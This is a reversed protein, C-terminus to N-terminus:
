EKKKKVPPIDNVVYLGGQKEPRRVLYIAIIALVLTILMGILALTHSLDMDLFVTHDKQELTIHIPTNGPTVDKMMLTKFGNANVTLTYYQGSACVISFNGLSDTVDSITTGTYTLSVTANAINFPEKNFITNVNGFVSANTRSILVTYGSDDYLEHVEEYEATERLEIVYLGTDGSKSLESCWGKITYGSLKFSIYKVDSNYNVRFLGNDDTTTSEFERDNSVWTTVTVGAIVEREELEPINYVYGELYKPPDTEPEQDETVPAQAEASAELAQALFLLAVLLSLILMASGLDRGDM